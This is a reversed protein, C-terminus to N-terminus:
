SILWCVLEKMSRQTELFQLKDQNYLFNWQDM